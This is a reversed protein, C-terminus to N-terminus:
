LRFNLSVGNEVGAGSKGEGSNRRLFDFRFYPIEGLLILFHGSVKGTGFPRYYSSGPFNEM